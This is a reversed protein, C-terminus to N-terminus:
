TVLAGVDGSPVTSNNVAVMPWVYLKIFGLDNEFAERYRTVFADVGEVTLSEGLVSM